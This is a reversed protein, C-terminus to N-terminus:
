AENDDGDEESGESSRRSPGPDEFIRRRTSPRLGVRRGDGGGEQSAERSRKTASRTVPGRPAPTPASPTVPPHQSGGGTGGENTELPTQAMREFMAEVMAALRPTRVRAGFLDSMASVDDLMARTTLVEKGKGKKRGKKEELERGVAFTERLRTMVAHSTKADFAQKTAPDLNEHLCTQAGGEMKPAGAGRLILLLQYRLVVLERVRELVDEETYDLVALVDTEGDDLADRLFRVIYAVQMEFTLCPPMTLLLFELALDDTLRALWERDEDDHHQERGSRVM